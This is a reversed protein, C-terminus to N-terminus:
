AEYPTPQEAWMAADIHERYDHDDEETLLRLERLTEEPSGASSVIYTGAVGSPTIGDIIKSITPIGGTFTLLASRSKVTMVNTIKEIVFEEWEDPTQVHFAPPNLYTDIAEQELDHLLSLAMREPSVQETSVGDCVWVALLYARYQTQAKEFEENFSQEEIEAKGIYYQGEPSVYRFNVTGM